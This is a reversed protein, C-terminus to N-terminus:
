EKNLYFEIKQPQKFWKVSFVGCENSCLDFKTIELDGQRLEFFASVSRTEDPLEGVRVQALKVYILESEFFISFSNPKWQVTSTQSKLFDRSKEVADVIKVDSWVFNKASGIAIGDAQATTILSQLFFVVYVILRTM